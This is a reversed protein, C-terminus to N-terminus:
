QKCKIKSLVILFRLPHSVPNIPPPLICLTSLEMKVASYAVDLCSLKKFLNYFKKMKIKSWVRKRRRKISLFQVDINKRSKQFVTFNLNKELEKGVNCM